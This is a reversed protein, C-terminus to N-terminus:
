LNDLWNKDPNNTFNLLQNLKKKPQADLDNINVKGGRQAVLPFETVKKGKFKYNEGPLMLKTDGTDDIGLLPEYVGEMTINNSNIQVPKGWNDPNLYGKNDKIVGGEKKKSKEDKPYYIRGYIEYPDGKVRDQIWDPFDYTDYYSIYDGRAINGSPNRDGLGPNTTLFNQLTNDSYKGPVDAESAQKIEKLQLKDHFADFIAQELESDVSLYKLDKNNSKVITPQYEAPRLYQLEGPQKLYHRWFEESRPDDYTQRQVDFTWRAM